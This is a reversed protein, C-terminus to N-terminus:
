FFIDWFSDDDDDDDQDEEYEDLEEDSANRMRYSVYMTVGQAIGALLGFVM